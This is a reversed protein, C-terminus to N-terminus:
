GVWIVGFLVRSCELAASVQFKYIKNKEKWQTTNYISHMHVFNDVAVTRWSVRDLTPVCSTGDGM